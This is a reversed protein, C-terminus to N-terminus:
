APPPCSADDSQEDIFEEPMYLIERHVTAKLWNFALTHRRDALLLMPTNGGHFIGQEGTSFMCGVAVYPGWRTSIRVDARAHSKLLIYAPEAAPRTHSYRLLDHPLKKVSMGTTFGLRKLTTTLTTLQPLATGASCQSVHQMVSNKIDAHRRAYNRLPTSLSFM